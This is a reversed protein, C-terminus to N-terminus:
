RCNVFKPDDDFNKKVYKQEISIIFEVEQTERRSYSMKIILEDTRVLKAQLIEICDILLLQTRAKDVKVRPDDKLDFELSM